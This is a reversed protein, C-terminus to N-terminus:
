VASGDFAPLLTAKFAEYSAWCIAASPMHFLVRPGVGKFLAAWGERLALQRMARLPSSSLREQAKECVGSAAASSSSAGRALDVELVATAPAMRSGALPTVGAPGPKGVSRRSAPPEAPPQQLLLGETQIRTKVVDLPTTLGAAVGGALAGSLLHNTPSEQELGLAASLSRKGTEYSTFYIATFPVNMLLTTGYSRYLAGVGERSTISLLCKLSSRYPSAQVQMRQKVVDAPTMVADNIVTASASALATAVPAAGAPPHCIPAHYAQSCGRAAAALLEGEQPGQVRSRIHEYTAFHLAHAPGAGLVAATFGQM